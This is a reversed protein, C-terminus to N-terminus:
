MHILKERIESLTHYEEVFLRPYVYLEWKKKIKLAPLSMKNEIAKWHAAEVSFEKLEDVNNKETVELLNNVLDQLLLM